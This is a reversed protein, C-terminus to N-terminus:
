FERKEPATLLKVARILTEAVAVGFLYVSLLVLGIYKQVAYRPNWRMRLLIEYVRKAKMDAKHPYQKFYQSDVPFTSDLHNVNIGAKWTAYDFSLQDREPGSNYEEWWLNMTMVIDPEQHKRVLIRTESLGNNKPYNERRYQDMKESTAREEVIGMNLCVDAERYICNRDPHMPVALDSEQLLQEALASVEGVIVINGDVWLSMKHEPFLKHPHIKIYGSKLKDSLDPLEIERTEWGSPISDPRDTFCIYDIDEEPKVPNVVVDYDGFVATYVVLSESM